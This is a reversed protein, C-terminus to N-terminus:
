RFKFDVVIVMVVDVPRGNQLAPRYKWQSVAKIAAEGFGFTESPTKLVEIDGVTGDKFVVAQLVVQGEVGAQRAAPPYHPQVRTSEVLVPSSVGGFGAVMLGELPPAELTGLVPAEQAPEAPAPRPGPGSKRAQQQELRYIADPDLLFLNPDPAPGPEAIPESGLLTPDPAPAIAGQMGLAPAPRGGGRRALPPVKSLPPSFSRVQIIRPKNRPKINIPFSPIVVFILIAHILVSLLLLGYRPRGTRSFLLLRHFEVERASKGSAAAADAPREEVPVKKEM